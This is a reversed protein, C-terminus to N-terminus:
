QQQQQTAAAETVAALHQQQQQRAWDTECRAKRKVIMTRACRTQIRDFDDSRHTVALCFVVAPGTKGTDTPVFKFLLFMLCMKDVSISLVTVLVLVLASLLPAVVHLAETRLLM